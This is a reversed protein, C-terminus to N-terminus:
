FGQSFVPAPFLGAGIQERAALALAALFLGDGVLGHPIGTFFSSAVGAERLPDARM